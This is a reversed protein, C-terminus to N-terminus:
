VHKYHVVLPYRHFHLCQHIVERKRKKEGGGTLAGSSGSIAWPQSGYFFTTASVRVTYISAKEHHIPNWCHECGYM